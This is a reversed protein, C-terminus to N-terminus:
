GQAGNLGVTGQCHGWHVGRMCWHQTHCKDVAGVQALKAVSSESSTASVRVVMTSAGVNITGAYVRDGPSKVM